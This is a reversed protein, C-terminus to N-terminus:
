MVFRMKSKRPTGSPTSVDSSLAGGGILERVVEQMEPHPRAPDQVKPPPAPAPAQGGAAVLVAGRRHPFRNMCLYRLADPIDKDVDSPKDTPRGAPDLKWSHERIKGLAYQMEEDGEDLVFYLCPEGILPVLMDKVIDIGAVVSGKAKSWERMRWGNKRFYAVMGPDEPDGWVAELDLHKVPVSIELKQAPDLETGAIVRTVFLASGFTFGVAFAFAHSFGYDQGGYWRVDLGRIDTALDAKTMRPNPAERGFVKAYADAPTLLHHGGILHGYILGLSSAKLSLLQSRAGDLTNTKFKGVTDSLPKLFDATGPGTALQGKCAAFISCNALCGHYGEDRVYRQKQKPDLAEYSDPDLARLTEESRYIPLRPLDPRHRTEPCRQTAELINWHKVVLGTEKAKDIAAQVPGTATQRTSTYVTLPKVYTGDEQFVPTPINKADALIQPNRIVDVEDLMLLGAHTGQVSQKTAVIVTTKHTAYRYKLKEAEDLVKFERASLVPNGDDERPVYYVVATERINDGYLFAQLDPEMFFKKLYRQADTSQREVAALHVVDTDLHMMSLVEIVSATLTKGGFRSAYFLREDPQAFDDESPWAFHQYVDWAMQLPTCDSPNTSKLDVIADPLDLDLHVYVWAWLEEKNKCRRFLLRRREVDDLTPFLDKLTL